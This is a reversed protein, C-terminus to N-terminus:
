VLTADAHAQAQLVILTPITVEIRNLAEQAQGKLRDLELPGARLDAEIKLQTDRLRQELLDLESQPLSSNPNFVFGQEVAQRWSVLTQRYTPGIGPIRLKSTIDLATEIGYAKLTAQRSPGIGHIRAAAITHRDLFSRLQVGRKDGELKRIEAQRETALNQHRRYAAQLAALRVSFLRNYEEVVERAAQQSDQLKRKASAALNKRREAEKRYAPNVKGGMVMLVGLVGFILAILAVSPASFLLCLALAMLAWGVYFAGRVEAVGTPLPVPRITSQPYISFDKLRLGDAQRAAILKWLEDVQVATTTNGVVLVKFFQPGGERYIRCWPCDAASEPYSHLPNSTCRRLPIARLVDVWERGSPRSHGARGSPAPLFAQEFLQVIKGPLAAPTLLHAPPRIGLQLHNSGFAYRYRAIASELQGDDDDGAVPVGAYPHRGMFLLHFILLALGFRDHDPTRVLGSLSPRNQLEPPTWLAVGVDCTMVRGDAGPIQYSDCDILRVLGQDTVIVNGENVDAMIVGHEHLTEFAAACNRAVHLLFDWGATPFEWLRDRPSYLQEVRKGAQFPMVFGTLDPSGAQFLLRTPWAAVKQLGPASLSRLRRLKEVKRQDPPQHYIKAVSHADGTVRFIEGEGGRPGVREGLQVRHGSEDVLNM